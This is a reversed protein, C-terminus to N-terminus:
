NAPTIVRSNPILEHAAALKDQLAGPLVYLANSFLGTDNAIKKAGLKAAEPWDQRSIVLSTTPDAVSSDVLPVYTPALLTQYANKSAIDGIPIIGNIDFAVPVGKLLPNDDITTRLTFSTEWPAFFPKIVREEAFGTSVALFVALLGILIAPRKRLILVVVLAAVVVVTAISWPASQYRQHYNWGYQLTGTVNIPAWWQTGIITRNRWVILFWLASIGVATIITAIALKRSLGRIVMAVGILTLPVVVPDLYRGYSLVDLRSSHNAIPASISTLSIIAMGIIGLFAWVAIGPVREKWETGLQRGLVIFGIIALGVTGFVIYWVQGLGSMLTPLFQASFIRGIGVSERAGAGGVYLLGTVHRYVLFSVGALVIMTVLGVISPVFHRRLTWLFWLATAIVFPVVRGHTAFAGAVLLGLGLANGLTKQGAWRMGFWAAFAVLLGLFNEPLGFGSLLAHAPSLAVVAGASIAKPWTLRFRRAILTLPVATAIGCLASLAVAGRYVAEGDRLIWWLPVLLVSWGIYYPRGRLSPIHGVGSMVQANGLYGAEDEWYLPLRAGSAIYGHVGILLLVLVTPLIWGRHDRV